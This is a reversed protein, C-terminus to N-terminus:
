QAGMRWLWLHASSAAELIASRESRKGDLGETWEDGRAPVHVRGLPRRHGGAALLEECEELSHLPSWWVRRLNPVQLHQCGTGLTATGLAATGLLLLWILAPGIGWRFAGAAIARRCGHQHRIHDSSSLRDLILLKCLAPPNRPSDQSGGRVSRDCPALATRRIARGAFKAPGPSGSERLPRMAEARRSATRPSCKAQGSRPGLGSSALSRSCCGSRPAPVLSTRSASVATFASASAALAVASLSALAAASLSALAAASLSASLDAAAGGAASSPPAGEGAASLRAQMPQARSGESISSSRSFCGIQPM